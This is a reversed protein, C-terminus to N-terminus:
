RISLPGTTRLYDAARERAARAAIALALGLVGALVGVTDPRSEAVPGVRGTGRGV